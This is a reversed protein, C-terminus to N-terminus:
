RATHFAFRCGVFATQSADTARGIYDEPAQTAMNSGQDLGNQIWNVLPRAMLEIVVACVSGLRPAFGRM